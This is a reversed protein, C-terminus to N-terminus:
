ESSREVIWNGMVLLDMRTRLFCDLAEEPRCVIPENENFSTNLLVPVGTLEFFAQLLAYLRPNEEQAVTQLRASGDVHTVAPIERRREERVPLVKMMFPVADSVEFWAPAQEALVAPAFPRFSERRKIKHNLLDRIDARRPDALISRNGLARPGWEMRGQFWGIVRGDAIATATHAYLRADDPEQRVSCNADRIATANEQLLRAIATDEFHPGWYAHPMAAGARDEGLKQSVLAAAGVAGGADGAAPQVYISRLDLAKYLKGNAVSNMACGGALTLRDSQERLPRLFAILAREYVAQVSAALDRHVDTVAEDPRRQRVGIVDALRDSFLESSRPESDVWEYGIPHRHHRFCDLELTFRGDAASAVVRDLANEFGPKGYAALGMLKYEDGYNPFGLFQTLAQYFVGLSHPFDIRASERIATGNGFGRAASAFDGFGDVSAVAAEAFPSALFASALHARHHEVPCVLGRFGAGVNEALLSEISARRGRTSLKERVLSWHPRGSLLYRLKAWRAARSDSNIGVHTVDSIAVGAEELCYRIALSPFGAWHKIRRFREEEAAAVLQGDRFLCAASDGHFANLGLIISM